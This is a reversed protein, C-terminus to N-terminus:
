NPQANTQANRLLDELGGLDFDMYTRRPDHKPAPPPQTLFGKLFEELEDKHIMYNQLPQGVVQAGFMPHLMLPLLDVRFLYGVKQVCLLETVGDPNTREYLKAKSIEGKDSPAYGYTAVLDTLKM